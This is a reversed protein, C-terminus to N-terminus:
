AKFIYPIIEITLPTKGTRCFSHPNLLAPLTVKTKLKMKRRCCNFKYFDQKPRAPLNNILKLKKM